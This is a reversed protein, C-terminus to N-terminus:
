ETLNQKNVLKNIIKYVMVLRIWKIRAIACAVGSCAGCAQHTYFFCMGKKNIVSITQSMPIFFIFTDLMLNFLELRMELEM